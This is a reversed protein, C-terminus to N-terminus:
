LDDVAGVEDLQILDIVQFLYCNNVAFWLKKSCNVCNCALQVSKMGQAIRDIVCESCRICVLQM